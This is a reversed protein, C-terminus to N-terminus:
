PLDGVPLVQTFETALEAALVDVYGVSYFAEGTPQSPSLVVSLLLTVALTAMVCIQALRRFVSNASEVRRTEIRRWLGPMFDPSAEPDPVAARYEAWLGDLKDDMRNM